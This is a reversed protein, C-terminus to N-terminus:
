RKPEPDEPWVRISMGRECFDLLERNRSRCCDRKTLPADQAHCRAPEHRDAPVTRFFEM